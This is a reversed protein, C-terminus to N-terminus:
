IFMGFYMKVKQYATHVFDVVLYSLALCLDDNLLWDGLPGWLNWTFKLRLSLIKNVLFFSISCILWCTWSTSGLLSCSNTIRDMKGTTKIRPGGCYNALALLIVKISIRPQKTVPPFIIFYFRAFMIKIRALFIVLLSQQLSFLSPVILIPISNPFLPVCGEFPYQMNLWIVRYLTWFRGNYFLYIMFALWCRYLVNFAFCRRLHSFITLASRLKIFELSICLLLWSFLLCFM